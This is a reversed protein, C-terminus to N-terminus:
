LSLEKMEAPVGNECFRSGFALKWWRPASSSTDLRQSLALSMVDVTHFISMNNKEANITARKVKVGNVGSATAVIHFLVTPRM